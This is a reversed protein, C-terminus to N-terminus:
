LPRWYDIFEKVMLEGEEISLLNTPAFVGIDIDRERYRMEIDVSPKM